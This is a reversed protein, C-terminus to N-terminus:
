RDRETKEWALLSDAEVQLIDLHKRGLELITRQETESLCLFTREEMRFVEDISGALFEEGADTLCILKNKRSDPANELRLYGTEELGKLASSVTQKSLCLEYCLQKQSISGKAERLTYLIWFASDSLGYKRALRHYVANTQKCLSNYIQIFECFSIM